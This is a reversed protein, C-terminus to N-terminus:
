SSSTETATATRPRKNSSSVNLDLMVDEGTQCSVDMATGPATRKRSLIYTVESFLRAKLEMWTDHMTQVKQMELFDMVVGDLLHVVDADTMFVAGFAEFVVKLMDLVSTKRKESNVLNNSYLAGFAIVVHVLKWIATEANRSCARVFGELHVDLAQMRGDDHHPSLVNTLFQVVACNTKRMNEASAIAFIVNILYRGHEDRSQIPCVVDAPRIEMSSSCLADRIIHLIKMVCEQLTRINRQSQPTVIGVVATKIGECLIRCADYCVKMFRDLDFNLYVPEICAIMSMLRERSLDNSETIYDQLAKM